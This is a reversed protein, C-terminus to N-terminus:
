YMHRNKEEMTDKPNQVRYISVSLDYYKRDFGGTIDPKYKKGDSYFGYEYGNNYLEKRLLACVEAINQSAM